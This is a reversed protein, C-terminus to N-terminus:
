IYISPDLLKMGLAAFFIGIYTAILILVLRGAKPEEVVPEDASGPGAVAEDVETEERTHSAKATGNLLPSRESAERSEDSNVAM